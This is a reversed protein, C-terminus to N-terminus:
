FDVKWCQEFLNLTSQITRHLIFPKFNTLDTIFAAYMTTKGGLYIVVWLCKSLRDYWLFGVTLNKRRTKSLGVLWISFRIYLESTLLVSNLKKFIDTKFNEESLKQCFSVSYRVVGRQIEFTQRLISWNLTHYFLFEPTSSFLKLVM